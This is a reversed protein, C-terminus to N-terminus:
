HSIESTIDGESRRFRWASSTHPIDFSYSIKHQADVFALSETQLQRPDIVYARLINYGAM